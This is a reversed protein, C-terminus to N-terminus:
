KDKSIESTVVNFDTVLSVVEDKSNLGYFTRYAGDGFGSSVVLIKMNPKVEFNAWAWTPKSQQELDKHLRKSKERNDAELLENLEAQVSYDVFGGFGSDVPYAERYSEHWQPGIKRIALTYHEAGENHFQVRVFAIREDGSPFKAVVAEAMGATTPVSRDLEADVGLMMTDKPSVKGSRFEIQGLQLIQITVKTGHANAQVGDVFVDKLKPKSPSCGCLLWSLMFNMIIFLKM